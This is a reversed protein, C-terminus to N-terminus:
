YLNQKDNDVSRSKSVVSVVTPRTDTSQNYKPGKKYGFLTKLNKVFSVGLSAIDHYQLINSINNAYAQLQYVPCQWCRASPPTLSVRKGAESLCPPHNIKFM